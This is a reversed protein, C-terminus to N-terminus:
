GAFFHLEYVSRDINPIYLIIFTFPVGSIISKYISIELM